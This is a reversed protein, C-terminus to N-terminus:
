MIMKSPPPAPCHNDQNHLAPTWLQAYTSQTIHARERPPKKRRDTQGDIQRDSNIKPSTRSEDKGYRPPITKRPGLNM